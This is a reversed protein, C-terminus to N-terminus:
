VAGAASLYQYSLAPAFAPSLDVLDLAVIRAQAPEAGSRQPAHSIRVPQVFCYGRGAVNDIYRQGNEGEGLARRVACIHVRLNGEEVVSEPWVAALLEDKSIVTGPRSVLAGLVDFARGGLKVLVDNRLLMRRAPLYRYQDFAICYDALGGSLLEM